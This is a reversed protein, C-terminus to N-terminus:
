ATSWASRDVNLDRAHPHKAKLGAGSRAASRYQSQLRKAVIGAWGQNLTFGYLAAGDAIM